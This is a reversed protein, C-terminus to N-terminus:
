GRALEEVLSHRLGKTSVRAREAGIRRLVAGFCALGAPLIEARGPEVPLELRAELDLGAVRESIERVGHAGLEWGEALRADFVELEQELCALNVAAGGVLVCELGRGIGQPLARAAAEVYNVLGAWGGEELPPEGGLGLWTETLVVAGIPISARLKGDDWALETSGGGVDIVVASASVGSAVVAAHSLRAEEEEPLVELVVGLEERVRVILREADLAQRLVATGVFRRREGAVGNVEMREVFHRLVEVTREVAGDELGGTRALGTGLRPTAGHEEVIEFEGGDLKGIVLLATNTGLDVAAALEGGGLKSAALAAAIAGRDKGPL